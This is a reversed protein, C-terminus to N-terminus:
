EDGVGDVTKMLARFRMIKGRIQEVLPIFEITEDKNSFRPCQERFESWGKFYIPRAPKNLRCGNAEHYSFDTPSLQQILFYMAFDITGRFLETFDLVLAERGAVPQHLFGFAPDLGESILIQRLESMVLTYSLSLLSNFPDKPPQRNRGTFRWQKSLNDALLGFWLRALAGEIGMLSEISKAQERKLDLAKRQQNFTQQQEASFLRLLLDYNAFKEAIIWRALVLAQTPQEACRYQLRRLPLRTALGAGIMAPEQGGRQSLLTTPIAAKSLARWVPIEILPNGYVILQELLNLPFREMVQDPRRICLTNREYDVRTEKSDIILIM